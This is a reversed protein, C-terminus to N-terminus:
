GFKLGNRLLSKQCLVVAAGVASYASPSGNEMMMELASLIQLGCHGLTFSFFEFHEKCSKHKSLSGSGRLSGATGFLYMRFPCRLRNRRRGWGRLFRFELNQLEAAPIYNGRTITAATDLRWPSQPQM